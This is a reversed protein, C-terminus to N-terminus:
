QAEQILAPNRETGTSTKACRLAAALLEDPDDIFPKSHLPLSLNFRAPALNPNLDVARQYCHIAEQINGREHQLVGLNNHAEPYKPNAKVAVLTVPRPMACLAKVYETWLDLWALEPKEDLWKTLYEYAPSDKKAGKAAKDRIAEYQKPM